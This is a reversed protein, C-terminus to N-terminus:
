TEIKRIEARPRGSGVPLAQRRKWFSAWPDPKELRREFSGLNFKAPDLSPKVESWDLPTSVPAHARARVSYPTVVTQAFGNRGADLYLRGRRKAIRAEVTLEKPHKEALRRCVERAFALVEDADPGVRLPAFVHMGKGGSTKAYSALDLAELAARLLLAARAADPFGGSGPDLDFCVWDPKRPASARSGWVHVAICGLNALALQTERRGGVVYRTVGKEHRIAKTPTGPPLGSPAEKQFFCEGRLGEPCRELSLLRDEVWPKLKPFVLDYFLALDRKTYGEEPFLVKEPHTIEVPLPKERV